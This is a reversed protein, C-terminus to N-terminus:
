LLYSLCGGEKNEDTSKAMPIICAITKDMVPCNMVDQHFGLASTPQVTCSEFMMDTSPPDPFYTDNLPCLHKILDGRLLLRERIEGANSANKDDIHFPNSVKEKELVAVISKYMKIISKILIPPYKRVTLAHPKSHPLCSCRAKHQEHSYMTQLGISTSCKSRKGSSSQTGGSDYVARHVNMSEEHGFANGISLENFVTIADNKFYTLSRPIFLLELKNNNQARIEEFLSPVYTTLCSFHYKQRLGDAIYVQDSENPREIVILRSVKNKQFFDPCLMSATDEAEKPDDTTAASEVVILSQDCYQVNKDNCM